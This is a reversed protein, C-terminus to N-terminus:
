AKRASTVVSRLPPLLGSLAHSVYREAPLRLALRARYEAHRRLTAAYSLYSMAGRMALMPTYRALSLDRGAVDRQTFYFGYYRSVVRAASRQCRRWCRPM